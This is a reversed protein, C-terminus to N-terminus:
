CNRRLKSEVGADANPATQTEPDWWVEIGLAFVVPRKTAGDWFLKFYRGNMATDLRVRGPLMPYTQKVTAPNDAAGGATAILKTRVRKKSSVTFGRKPTRRLIHKDNNLVGSMAQKLCWGNKPMLSTQVWAVGFDRNPNDEKSPDFRYLRVCKKTVIGVEGTDSQTSQRSCDKYSPTLPGSVNPGDAPDPASLAPSTVGLLGALGLAFFPRKTLSM